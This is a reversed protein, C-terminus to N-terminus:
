GTWAGLLLGLDRGDVTQDGNLDASGPNASGWASLLMNLDFGAVIGDRDLDGALPVCPGADTVLDLQLTYASEQTGCAPYADLPSVFVDYVGPPLCAEAVACTGADSSVVACTDVLALQTFTMSWVRARVVTPQSLAFRFFDTDRHAQDGWFSGAVPQGFEIPETLHALTNCGGNGSVGCAEIEKVSAKPPVCDGAHASPSAAPALVAAAAFAPVLSALIARRPVVAM